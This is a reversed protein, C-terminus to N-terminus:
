YFKPIQNVRKIVTEFDLGIIELYWKISEYRPQNEENVLELAKERTLMGERIQNSRFTDFESFGAVTYYVYNYFAATGDGIRWTSKIDIATEWDYEDFLIREIESESWQHYDFFHFYDERPNLYRSTFSGITDFVSSNLYGPNTLINKSVYSLLKLQRKLNMSYIMKKDWQPPVGAFGVKFDTNELFNIGWIQLKIDNQKRVQNAYKFFYKDGAMFLPIMGLSPKNLWAEINKRIYMRKKKIDASVIINEVGLKGCVRAINRRALDTVMGWDYTFSIPNLKLEKKVFHLVYTSDRGGSFPVLCDPQGNTRRYPEVLKQLDEIPKPANKKIYNECINCEGEKNFEIFPFTEPLLCKTCRKLRSIRDTDVELLKKESNSIISNSFTSPDIVAHLQGTSPHYNSISIKFETSKDNSNHFDQDKLLDFEHISFDKYFLLFGRNARVQKIAIDSDLYKHKKKLLRNLIDKESAFIFIDKNNTLIYLSGNNTYVIFEDRDNIFFGTSVTGLLEANTDKLAKMSDNYHNLHMRFLSYIIETDIDYERKLTPYKNWLETENVIIGNHIGVIGDKTVPQNNEDELQSGNTVLRAHGLAAFVHRSNEKSEKLIRNRLGNYEETDLLEDVSVPGKLVEIQNGSESRVALGSSDKGRVQSLRALTELIKVLDEKKYESEKAIVGFIGCM